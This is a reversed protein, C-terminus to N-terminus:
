MADSVLGEVKSCLMYQWKKTDFLSARIANM